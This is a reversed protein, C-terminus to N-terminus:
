PYQDEHSDKQFMVSFLRYATIPIVLALCGVAGVVFMWTLIRFVIEFM